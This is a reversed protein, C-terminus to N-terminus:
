QERESEDASPSASPEAADDDAIVEDPTAYRFRNQGIQLEDGPMLLQRVNATLRQGNLQTGNTSGIDTIYTGTLDAVIEAHRGSVYSNGTIVVTNEPRRGITIVGETVAIDDAAGSVTRLIGVLAGGTVPEIEMSAGSAPAPAVILSRAIFTDENSYAGVMTKDGGDIVAPMAITAGAPAAGFELTVNWNGFRLNTGNTATVPANAGIRQDGVKTGNSSGLDEITVTGNAVTIRAHTRSVTGDNVLM